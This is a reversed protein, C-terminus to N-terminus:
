RRPSLVSFQDDEAVIPAAPLMSFLWHLSSAPADVSVALPFVTVRANFTVNLAPNAPSRCVHITTSLPANFLPQVWSPM